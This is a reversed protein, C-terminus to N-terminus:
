KLGLFGLCNQFEVGSCQKDLCTAPIITCLCYVGPVLLLQAELYVTQDFSETICSHRVLGKQVYWVAHCPRRKSSARIVISYFYSQFICLLM